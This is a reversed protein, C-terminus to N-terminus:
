ALFRVLLSAAIVGWLTLEVPGFRHDIWAPVEKYRPVVRTLWLAGLFIWGVVFATTSLVAATDENGSASPEPAIMLMLVIGVTCYLAFAGMLKLTKIFGARDNRWQRYVAPGLGAILAVYFLLKLAFNWDM